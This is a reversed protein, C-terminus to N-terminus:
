KSAEESENQKDQADAEKALEDLSLQYYILANMYYRTSQPLHKLEANEPLSNKMDDLTRIDRTEFRAFASLLQEKDNVDFPLKRTLDLARRAGAMATLHQSFRAM